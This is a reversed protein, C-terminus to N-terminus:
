IEDDRRMDFKRDGEDLEREYEIEPYLCEVCEEDDNWYPCDDCPCLHDDPINGYTLSNDIWNKM